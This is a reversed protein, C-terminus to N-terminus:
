LYLAYVEAGAVVAVDGRHLFGLAVPADVSVHGPDAAGNAIQSAFASV